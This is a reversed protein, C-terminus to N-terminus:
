EAKFAKLASFFLFSSLPALVFIVVMFIISNRGFNRSAEAMDFMRLVEPNQRRRAFELPSGTLPGKKGFM